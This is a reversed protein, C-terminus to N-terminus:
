KLDVTNQDLTLKSKSNFGVAQFQLPTFYLPLSELNIKNKSVPFIKNKIYNVLYM